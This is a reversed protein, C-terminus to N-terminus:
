VCGIERHRLSIRVEMPEVKGPLAYFQVIIAVKIPATLDVAHLHLQADGSRITTRSIFAFAHPM